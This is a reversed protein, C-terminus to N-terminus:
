SYGLVSCDELWAELCDMETKGVIQERALVEYCNSLCSLLSSEPLNVDELVEPFMSSATYMPFESVLDSLYDHPNRDQFVTPKTFGLCFKQSWMIPQAVYSRLIDTFRFTVSIPLYMLPFLEKRFATNQSNFPSWTGSCLALPERDRFICESGDTLRYIADVDPDGNALGQWVGIELLEASHTLPQPTESVKSLPLGRPWIKHDTFERYVNVFGQHGSVAQGSFTFPPIAFSDLPVNDDDTDLIVDAGDHMAILYGLNKRSYHNFPLLSELKTDRLGCDNVGLFKAGRLKWNSPTKQDGVVILDFDSLRSFKKVSKSPPYITTVVVKKSPM